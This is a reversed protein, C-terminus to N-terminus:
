KITDHRCWCGWLIKTIRVRCLFCTELQRNQKCRLVPKNVIITAPFANHRSWGSLGPLANQWNWQYKTNGHDTKFNLHKTKTTNNMLVTKIDIENIGVNNVNCQDYINVNSNETKWNVWLHMSDVVKQMWYHLLLKLRSTRIANKNTKFINNNYIFIFILMFILMEMM